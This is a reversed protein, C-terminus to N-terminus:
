NGNRVTAIVYFEDKVCVYVYRNIKKDPHKTQMYSQTGCQHRNGPFALLDNSGKYSSNYINNAAVPIGPNLGPDEPLVALARLCQDM